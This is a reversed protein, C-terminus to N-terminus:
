MKGDFEIADKEADLGKLRVCGLLKEPLEDDADCQVVFGIDLTLQKLYSRLQYMGQRSIYNFRHIDVDVEFHDPGKYYSKCNRSLFPKANYKAVYSNLVWGLQLDASNELRVMNKWQHPGRDADAITLPESLFKQMVKAAGQGKKIAEEGDANLRFYFCVAYGQGDLTGGMVSPAYAPIQLVVIWIRPVGMFWGGNEKTLESLDVKNGIDSLNEKTHSKFTDVAVIDYFSGVSPKKLGNRRYNPGCRLRFSKAEIPEWKRKTRNATSVGAYFKGSSVMKSVDIMSDTSARRSQPKKKEEKSDLANTGEIAEKGEKAEKMPQGVVNLSLDVVNESDDRQLVALNLHVLDDEESEDISDGSHVIKNERMSMTANSHRRFHNSRSSSSRIAAPRRRASQHVRRLQFIQRVDVHIVVKFPSNTIAVSYNIALIFLSLLILTVRSCDRAVSILLLMFFSM